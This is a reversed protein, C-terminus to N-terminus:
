PHDGTRATTPPHNRGARVAFTGLAGALAVGAGALTTVPGAPSIGLLGGEDGSRVTALLAVTGVSIALLATITAGARAFGLALLGLCVTSVLPVAVWIHLAARVFANDFFALRGASDAAQYSHREISGSRFWPLFTGLVLIVLGSAAVWPPVRRFGTM